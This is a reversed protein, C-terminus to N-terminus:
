RSTRSAAMAFVNMIDAMSRFEGNNSRILTLDFGLCSM